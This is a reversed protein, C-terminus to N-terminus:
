EEWTRLHGVQERTGLEERPMLPRPPRFPSAKERTGRGVTRTSSTQHHAPRDTQKADDYIVHAKELVRNVECQGPEAYRVLAGFLTCIIRSGRLPPNDAGRIGQADIASEMYADILKPPPVQCRYRTKSKRMMLHLNQADTFLKELAETYEALFHPGKTPLTPGVLPQFFMKVSNALRAPKESRIDLLASLEVTERTWACLKATKGIVILSLCFPTKSM